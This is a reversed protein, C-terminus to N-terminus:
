QDTRENYFRELREAQLERRRAIREDWKSAKEPGTAAAHADAVGRAFPARFQVPMKKYAQMAALYPDDHLEVTIKSQSM